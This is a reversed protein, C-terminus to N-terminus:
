GNGAAAAATDGDDDSGGHITIRVEDGGSRWDDDAAAMDGAGVTPAAARVDRATGGDGVDGDSGNNGGNNNCTTMIGSPGESREDGGSEYEGSGLNSGPAARATNDDSADGDSGAMTAQQRQQQMSSPGESSGEGGIDGSGDGNCVAGAENDGMQHAEDAATATAM